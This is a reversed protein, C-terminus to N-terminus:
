TRIVASKLPLDLLFCIICINSSCFVPNNKSSYPRIIINVGAKACLTRIYITLKSMVVNLRATDLLTSPRCAEVPKELTLESELEPAYKCNM